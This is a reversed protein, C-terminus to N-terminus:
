NKTKKQTQPKTATAPSTSPERVRKQIRESLEESGNEIYNTFEIASLILKEKAHETRKAFLGHKSMRCSYLKNNAQAMRGIKLLNGYFPTTHHNIFLQVPLTGNNIKIVENSMVKCKKRNRFVKLKAAFSIFKVVILDDSNNVRYITDIDQQQLNISLKSCFTSFVKRLAKESDDQLRPIGSVCLNNALQNQKFLEERHSMMDVASLCSDLKTNITKIEASHSSIAAENEDFRKHTYDIQQQLSTRTASTDSQINKMLVFLDGLSPEAAASKDEEVDMLAKLLPKKNAKTSNVNLNNRNEKGKKRKVISKSTNSINLVRNSSMTPTLFLNQSVLHM